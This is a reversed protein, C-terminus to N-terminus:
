CGLQFKREIKAASVFLVTKGTAVTDSAAPVRETVRTAPAVDYMRKETALPAVALTCHDGSGVLACSM